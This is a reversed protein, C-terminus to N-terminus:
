SDCYVFTVAIADGTLPDWLGRFMRPLVTLYM